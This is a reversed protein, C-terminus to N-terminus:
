RKPVDDCSVFTRQTNLPAEVKLLEFSVACDKHLIGKLHFRGIKQVITSRSRPVLLTLPVLRTPGRRSVGQPTRLARPAWLLWFGTPSSSIEATIPGSPVESGGPPTLSHDSLTPAM